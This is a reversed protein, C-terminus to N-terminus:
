PIKQPMAVLVGSVSQVGFLFKYTKEPHAAAYAACMEKLMAQDEQSGWVTLTIKEGSAAPTSSKEDEGGAFVFACALALLTIITIFKKM